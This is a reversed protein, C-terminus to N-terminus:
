RYERIYRALEERSNNMAFVDNIIYYVQKDVTKGYAYKALDLKNNESSFLQVIEKVQRSNFYNRDVIQRATTVRTNEFWERRLSERVQRFEQDSIVRGNNNDDRNNRNDYDYNRNRDRDKDTDRGRDNWDDDEEYWDDNRDIRREDVFVKGFRNILIDIHYGNRLQIRSNYIIENRNNGTGFIWGRNNKKMERIVKITHNGSRLDRISIENDKMNYRHGDVEVYLKSKNISSITVRPGDNAVSVFAFISSFLFTFFTKM